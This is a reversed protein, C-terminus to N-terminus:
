KWPWFVVYTLDQKKKNIKSIVKMESTRRGELEGLEEGSLGFQWWWWAVVGNVGVPVVEMAAHMGAFPAM